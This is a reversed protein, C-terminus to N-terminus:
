GEGRGGLILHDVLQGGRGDSIRHHELLIEAISLAAGPPKESTGESDGAQFRRESGNRGGELLGSRALTVAPIM